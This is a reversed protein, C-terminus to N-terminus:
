FNKRIQVKFQDNKKIRSLKKLRISFTGLFQTSVTLKSTFSIKFFENEINLWLDLFLPALSKVNKGFILKIKVCIPFYNQFCKVM